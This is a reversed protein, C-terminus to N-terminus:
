VAKWEAYCDPCRISLSNQLSRSKACCVDRGAAPKPTPESLWGGLIVQQENETVEVDSHKLNCVAGQKAHRLGIGILSDVDQKHHELLGKDIRSISRSAM